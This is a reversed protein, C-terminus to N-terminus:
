LSGLLELYDTLERVCLFRERVRAKGATGMSVRLSEDRLLTVM